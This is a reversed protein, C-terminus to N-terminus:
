RADGDHEQALDWRSRPGHDDLDGATVNAAGITAAGATILALWGATRPRLRGRVAMAALFSTDLTDVLLGARDLHRRTPIDATLYASGLALARTGFFRWGLVASVEESEELLSLRQTLVPGFLGLAGLACRTAALGLAMKRRM